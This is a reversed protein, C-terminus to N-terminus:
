SHHAIFLPKNLEEMLIDAMSTRFWRSVMGRNYAGLVILLHESNDKLKNVIETVADGKFVTFVANPFHRKMFEKMLQNDPVHLTNKISKVSIVEVKLEPLGTFLYSFMKIAYVSAPEGDYLLIAKEFPTFNKPVVMVPCQVESLLDRVFRTPLKEEYHTFTERSEIVLLDAFVSEHLLEHIAINRDHHVNFNIGAAQCAISFKQTAEERSKDDRNQLGAMKEENVYGGRDVLEYIKYSHYTVDDLFVGVLHSGTQKAVQVAYDTTSESYKLGDIVAIIKKM